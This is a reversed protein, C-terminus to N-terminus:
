EDTLDLFRHFLIMQQGITHKVSLNNILTTFCSEVILLRISDRPGQKNGVCMWVSVDFCSETETRESWFMERHALESTKWSTAKTNANNIEANGM